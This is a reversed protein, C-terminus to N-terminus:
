RQLPQKASAGARTHTLYIIISFISVSFIRWVFWFHITSHNRTACMWLLPLLAIAAFPLYRKALEPSGFRFRCLVAGAVVVGVVGMASLAPLYLRSSPDTGGIRQKFSAVAESFIELDTGLAAVVWKSMWIGGYGAAWCLGIGLLLKWDPLRNRLLLVVAAPLGLTLLPTTLLDMYSTMGGIFFFIPLLLTGNLRHSPLLLLAGTSLLMIYFCTSYQLSAPVVPFGVGMMAVLFTIGVSRGLRRWMLITVGILLLWMLVTNWVRIERLNLVMLTPTMTLTYGHWYRSYYYKPIDEGQLGRIASRSFQFDSDTWLSNGLADRALSDSRCSTTAIIIADSFYDPALLSNGTPLYHPPPALQESHLLQESELAHQRLSESDALKVLFSAATMGAVMVVYLLMLRWGIAAGKHSIIKKEPM